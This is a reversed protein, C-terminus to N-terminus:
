PLLHEISHASLVGLLISDGGQLWLMMLSECPFLDIKESGGWITQDDGAGERYPVVDLPSTEM